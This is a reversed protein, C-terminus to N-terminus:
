LFLSELPDPSPQTNNYGLLSTSGNPWLAERPLPRGRTLFPSFQWQVHISQMQDRNLYWVKLHLPGPSPHRVTANDNHWCVQFHDSTSPLIPTFIEPTGLVLVTKALQACRPKGLGLEEVPSGINPPHSSFTDSTTQGPYCCPMTRQAATWLQELAICSYTRTSKCSTFIGFHHKGSTPSRTWFLIM